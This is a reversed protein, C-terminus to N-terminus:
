KRVAIEHAILDLLTARRHGTDALTLRDDAEGQPRSAVTLKLTTLRSRASVVADRDCPDLAAGDPIAWGMKVHPDDTKAVPVSLLANFRACCGLAALCLALTDLRDCAVENRLESAARLAAMRLALLTVVKESEAPKVGARTSPQSSVCFEWFVRFLLRKVILCRRMWLHTRYARARGNVMLVRQFTILEVKMLDKWLGQSVELPPVAVPTKANPQVPKSPVQNSLTATSTGASPAVAPPVRVGNETRHTPRETRHTPRGPLSADRQRVRKM